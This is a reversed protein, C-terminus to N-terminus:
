CQTMEWRRVADWEPSPLTCAHRSCVHMSLAHASLACARGSCVRASLAHVGLCARVSVRACRSVRAMLVHAGLCVLLCMRASLARAALVCARGTM